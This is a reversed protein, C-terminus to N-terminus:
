LGGEHELVHGLGLAQARQVGRASPGQTSLASFSLDHLSMEGVAVLAEAEEHRKQAAQSVAQWQREISPLQRKVASEFPGHAKMRPTGFAVFRAEPASNALFLLAGKSNPTVGSSWSRVLAGSQQNVVDRNSV